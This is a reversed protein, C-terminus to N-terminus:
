QRDDGASDGPHIEPAAVSRTEDAAAAASPKAGDPRTSAAAGDAPRTEAPVADPPYRLNVEYRAGLPEYLEPLPAGHLEVWAHGELAHGRRRVGSVFVAPVGRRRLAAFIALSRPVCDGQRRVRLLRLSWHVGRVLEYRERDDITGSAAGGTGHSAVASSVSKGSVGAEPQGGAMRALLRDLERERRLWWLVRLVGPLQRVTALAMGPGRAILRELPAPTREHAHRLWLIWRQRATPPELDLVQRYPDCRRLFTRLTASCRLERARELLAERPLGTSRVIAQFDVYDRPKITWAGSSVWCRQLVIGFLVADREDLVRVPVDDLAREHSADWARDTLRRQLRQGRSISHAALRHVDLQIRGDPSDLHMLVHNGPNTSLHVQWGLADARDAALDAHEPRVLLDIDEYFRQAPVVYAFEALAFGKFLLATVGAQHWARLLPLLEARASAHATLYTLLGPKLAARAPHDSPICTYAYASLQAQALVAPPPPPAREPELLFATLAARAEAPTLRPATGTTADHSAQVVLGDHCAHRPVSRGGGVAPPPPTITHQLSAAWARLPELPAGGGTVHRSGRLSM